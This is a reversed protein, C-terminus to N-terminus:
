LCIILLIKNQGQGSSIVPPLHNLLLLLFIECLLVDNKLRFLFRAVTIKYFFGSNVFQTSSGRDTVSLIFSSGFFLREIYEPWFWDFKTLMNHPLKHAWFFTSCLSYLSICLKFYSREGFHLFTWWPMQQIFHLFTWGSMQQVFHLLSM